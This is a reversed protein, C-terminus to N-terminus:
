YLQEISILEFNAYNKRKIQCYAVVRHCAEINEYYNNIGGAKNSCKYNIRYCHEGLSANLYRYHRAQMNDYNEPDELFDIRATLREIEKDLKSIKLCKKKYKEELKKYAEDKM